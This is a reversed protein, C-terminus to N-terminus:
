VCCSVLTDIASIVEWGMPVTIEGHAALIWFVRGLRAQLHEDERVFASSTCKGNVGYDILHLEGM